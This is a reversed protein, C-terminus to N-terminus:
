SHASSGPLAIRRRGFLRADVSWAGPGIMALTLGLVALGIPVSTDGVASLAVWAEVGALVIGAIPTWLGVVLFIGTFAGVTHAAASPCSPTASLCAFDAYLLMAGVLLRQVLLGAGPWGDAFTSFIRLV